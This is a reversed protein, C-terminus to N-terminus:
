SCGANLTMTEVCACCGFFHFPPPPPSLPHATCDPTLLPLSCPSHALPTLPLLCPYLSAFLEAVRWGQTSNNNTHQTLRKKGVAKTHQKNRQTAPASIFILLLRRKSALSNACFFPPPFIVCRAMRQGVKTQKEGKTRNKRKREWKKNEHTHTHNKKKHTQQQQLGFM